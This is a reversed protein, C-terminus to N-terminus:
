MKLFMSSLVCQYTLFTQKILTWIMRYSYYNLANALWKTEQNM